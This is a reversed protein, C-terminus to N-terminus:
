CNKLLDNIANALLGEQKILPVGQMFLSHNIANQLNIENQKQFVCWGKESFRKALYEQETQGPTPIFIAKKGYSALDLITSYGGRCVIIESAAVASEMEQANLHSVVTLNNITQVNNTKEPKGLVLLSTKNLRLLEKKLKEEFISRQPEPGSIIAMIEYTIETNLNGSFRTLPGIFKANLPLAELHSLKGSLNKQAPTDPIWCYNFRNIYRLNLHLAIDELIPSLIRIQHTIFVCPITKTWLGFRNDSIVANIQHKEIIKELMLHEKRIMKLIHPVKGLVKFFFSGKNQYSVNYGPLIEFTLNPFERQLLKLPSGDAAIIVEAGQKQLERIIPICRTAHGLGWDLPSLLIKKAM